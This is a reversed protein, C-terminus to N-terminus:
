LFTGAEAEVCWAPLEVYFTAGQKPESELWVKGAMREVAKKVLALGIGTGPYENYSHLRRFIEFIREHHADDIGIGNDRVWLRATEDDVRGGIEITPPQSQRSYKLANEVLNRLVLGLNLPDGRVTIEAPFDVRIEAGDRRIEEDREHLITQVIPLVQTPQFVPPRQGVQAHALLEEVLTNLRSANQQILDLFLLGDGDLLDRYQRSLLTSFSSLRGLPARMDHSAAYTFGELEKNAATLEATREAVRRELIQEWEKRETIDSFVAVAGRVAGDQGFLPSANGYLWVQRGDGFQLRYEAAGVTCGEAAARQMALEEPRLERGAADFVQYDAARDPMAASFSVNDGGHVSFIRNGAPNCTIQRCQPDAAFLVAAPIADLVAQLEETRQTVLQELHHRHRALEEGLRKKETIDEKVAAYHTIRGDAQRIPTIVAFEFYESGDKRRNCFEGQWPQGGTLAEWLAAYTEPPTKGSRFLRTKQGIIEARSYGTARAGAENVYEINTDLDTIVVTAHSQAVALSLKRLQDEARRRQTIDRAIGFVGIIRGEADHVPGKTTLFTTMGVRTMIDDESSIVQNEAMVHRDAAMIAAADAPSLLATEDRGLVEAASKGIFRAAAENLFLYRSAEDKVFIVDPSNAAITDLLQLARLKEAQAERERRSTNLQQRLHFLVTGAATVFLALLGTLAIWLANGAAEAYLEAKDLKAILFWDTGPIGRVVSMLDVDELLTQETPALRLSAVADAQRRLQNLFLIQKGDRRFLVTEGSADPTPWAQLASSLYDAPDTRLVVIPSANGKLAQVPAIFDLRLRGSGDRYPALMRVQGAAAATRAAARLVPAIAAPEGASDWLAEGDQDLLLIAQLNNFKRFQDLRHQLQEIIRTDRTDRWRQYTEAILRSTHIFGADGQRERLWDTIQRTQLDAIVQLRTMVEQKRSKFTNTVATATLGVITATLLFLLVVLPRRNAMPRQAAGASGLLRMLGHLPPAAMGVFLWDWTTNALNIASPHAFMREGALDSLLIWLTALAVCLLVVKPIRFDKTRPRELPSNPATIM